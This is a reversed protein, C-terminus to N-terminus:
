REHNDEKERTTSSELFGICGLQYLMCAEIMASDRAGDQWATAYADERNDTYYAERERQMQCAIRKNTVRYELYENKRASFGLEALEAKLNKDNDKLM